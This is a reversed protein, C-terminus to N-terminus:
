PRARETFMGRLAALLRLPFGSRSNATSFAECLKRVCACIFNL